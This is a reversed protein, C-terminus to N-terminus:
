GDFLYRQVSCEFTFITYSYYSLYTKKHLHGPGTLVTLSYLGFSVRSVTTRKLTLFEGEMYVTVDRDQLFTM